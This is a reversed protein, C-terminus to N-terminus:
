ATTPPQRGPSREDLTFYSTKEQIFSFYKMNLFPFLIERSSQFHMKPSHPADAKAPGKLHSEASTTAFLRGEKTPPVAPLTHVAPVWVRGGAVGAQCPQEGSLQDDGAQM